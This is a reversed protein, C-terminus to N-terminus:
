RKENWSASGYKERAITSARCNQEESFDIRNMKWGTEEEFRQILRSALEEISISVGSLEQIGRLVPTCPSQQLLISGHQMLAGRMRRQASGTIKSSGILLDGPTQHLFCLFEGLKKEEGCIVARATVGFSALTAVILHHFQCLWTEKTQWPLGAPLALCYTLERDHLIAAGGSSRRVWAVDPLRPMAPQFYGLSLTPESWTYFRLSAIGREADQLMVEDLAMNMPGSHSELPLLRCSPQPM